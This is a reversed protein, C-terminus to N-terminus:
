RRRALARALRELLAAHGLEDLNCAELRDRGGHAQARGATAQAESRSIGIRRYDMAPM